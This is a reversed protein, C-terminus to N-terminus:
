REITSLLKIVNLTHTKPGVLNELLSKISSHFGNVENVSFKTFSDEHQM